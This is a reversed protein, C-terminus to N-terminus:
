SWLEELARRLEPYMVWRGMGDEYEKAAIWYGILGTPLDEDRSSSRPPDVRLADSLRRGANGYQANATSHDPYGGAHALATATMGDDGAAAHAKLMAVQPKSFSTVELAASYEDQSPVHFGMREDLRRASAFEQDRADLSRRISDIVEQESGASASAVEGAGQKADTLYARAQWEGKMQMARITYKGHVVNTPKPM